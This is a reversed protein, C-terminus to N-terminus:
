AHPGRRGRLGAAQAAQKNGGVAYCHRGITTTGLAIAALVAVVVMVLIPMPVGSGIAGGVGTFHADTNTVPQGDTTVYVIGRLLALTGLTIVIPSIPVNWCMVGNFLGILGSIAVPALPALR